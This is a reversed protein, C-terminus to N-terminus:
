GGRQDAPLRPVTCPWPPPPPEPPPGSTAAARRPVATRDPGEAGRYVSSRRTSRRRQRGVSVRESCLLRGTRLRGDIEDAHLRHQHVHRGPPITGGFRGDM